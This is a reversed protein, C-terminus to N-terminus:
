FARRDCLHSPKCVNNEPQAAFELDPAVVYFYDKGLIITHPIILNIGKLLREIVEPYGVIVLPHVTSNIEPKDVSAFAIEYVCMGVLIKESSNM